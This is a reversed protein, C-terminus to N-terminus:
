GIDSGWGDYAVGLKSALASLTQTLEKVGQHDLTSEKSVVLMGEALSEFRFGKEELLPRLANLLDDKGLFYHERRHPKAPDSGSSVLTDITTADLQNELSSEAPRLSEDFYGWGDEGGPIVPRGLQTVWEHVGAEFDDSSETQFVWEHYGVADVVMVMRCKVQAKELAQILKEEFEQLTQLAQATPMREPTVETDSLAVAMRRMFPHGVHEREAAADADFRVVIPGPQRVTSWHDGSIKM